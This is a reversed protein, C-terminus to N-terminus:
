AVGHIEEWARCLGALNETLVKAIKRIERRSFDYNERLEVPGTPCNLNFVAESEPGIVHVHAPRHDNPYIVVRLGDFRLVTPVSGVKGRGGLRM